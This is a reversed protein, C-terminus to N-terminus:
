NLKKKEEVVEGEVDIVEGRPKHSRSDSGSGRGEPWHSRNQASARVPRESLAPHDSPSGNSELKDVKQM